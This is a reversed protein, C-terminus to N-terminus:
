IIVGSIIYVNGATDAALYDVNYTTTALVSLVGASDVKYVGQGFGVYLNGNGDKAVSIPNQVGITTALVDNPQGGGAVTYVTYNQADAAGLFVLLAM